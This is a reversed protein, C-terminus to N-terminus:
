GDAKKNKGDDLTEPEKGFGCLRAIGVIPPAYKNLFEWILKWQHKQYANSMNKIKMYQYFLIPFIMATQNIFVFPVSLLGIFIEYGNKIFNM